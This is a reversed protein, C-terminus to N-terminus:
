ARLNTDRRSAGAARGQRARRQRLAGATVQDLEDSDEADAGLHAALSVVTPYHYLDVIAVERRLRRALLNQVKLVLMSDGGVEFFNDTRSVAPIGLLEAWTAAVIEEIQGCAPDSDAPEPGSDHELLWRVRARDVKGNTSLPLRPLVVFRNPIMHVPLREILWDRVKATRIPDSGTARCARLHVLPSTDQHWAQPREFGHEALLRCWEQTGLLSTGLQRRNNDLTSFGRTPLVAGIMALPSLETQELALLVGHPALLEAASALGSAVQDFNYLSNNALLVDFHRHLNEPVVDGTLRHFRLEHSQSALRQKAQALLRVSADALTYDVRDSSLRELLQAATHGTRAGLEMIRLPRDLSRALDNLSDAIENLAATAAPFIDILAEPALVSDELLTRVDLDGCIIAVLDDARDALRAAVTALPTDSAQEVLGPWRESGAVVSWRPGVTVEGDDVTLAGRGALWSLWFRFVPIYDDSTGFSTALVELRQPRDTIVCRRSLLHILLGEVLEAANSPPVAIRDVRRSALLVRDLASYWKPTAVVRKGQGSRTTVAAILTTGPEGFTAVVARGIQPHTELVAEIEGLETRHGRIKLQTDRRGLFELTGDPWYRGHD